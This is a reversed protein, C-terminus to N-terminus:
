FLNNKGIGRLCTESLPNRKLNVQYGLSFVSYNTQPNFLGDIRLPIQYLECAMDIEKDNEYYQAIFCPLKDIKSAM